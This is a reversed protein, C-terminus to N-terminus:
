KGYIVFLFYIVLFSFEFNFNHPTSVNVDLGTWNEKKVSITGNSKMDQHDDDTTTTNHKNKRDSFFDVEDVVVRNNNDHISPQPAALQDERGGLKVPFEIGPFM